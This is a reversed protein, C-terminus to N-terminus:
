RLPADCRRQSPRPPWPREGATIRPRKPPAGADNGNAPADPAASPQAAHRAPSGDPADPAPPRLTWQNVVASSTIVQPVGDCAVHFTM